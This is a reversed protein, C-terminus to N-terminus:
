LVNRIHTQEHLLIYRQEQEPLTSPLYIKPRIVGMVFPSSIHDALYINDRWKVSGVLDARLRLLAIVSYILLIAIGALWISRGAFVWIQMPNVSAGQIATQTSLVPNVAHDVLSIGTNIQPVEAYMIDGPIPNANIFLFSFLSEFSFSCILRFLVVSWLAYSFIKPARKLLLRAALVFLIVYSATLTMNLVRLFIADM